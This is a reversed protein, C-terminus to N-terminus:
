ASRRSRQVERMPIPPSWSRLRAALTFHDKEELLVLVPGADEPLPRPVTLAQRCGPCSRSHGVLQAPAKIRAQCQPCLFRIPHTTM